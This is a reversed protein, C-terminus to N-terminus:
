PNFRKYKLYRITAALSDEEVLPKTQSSFM